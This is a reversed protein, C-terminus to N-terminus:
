DDCGGKDVLRIGKNVGNQHILRLITSVTAIRSKSNEDNKAKLIGAIEEAKQLAEQENM